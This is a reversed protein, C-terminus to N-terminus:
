ESERSTATDSVPPRWRGDSILISTYDLGPDEVRPIPQTIDWVPQMDVLTTETMGPRTPPPTGPRPRPPQIPAPPHRPTEGPNEPPRSPRPTPKARTPGSVAKEGLSWFVASAFVAVMTWITGYVILPFCYRYGETATFREFCWAFASTSVALMFSTATAVLADRQTFSM